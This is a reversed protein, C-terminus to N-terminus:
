EIVWRQDTQQSSSYILETVTTANLVCGYPAACRNSIIPLPDPVVQAAPFFQDKVTMSVNTTGM